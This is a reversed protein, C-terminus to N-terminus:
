LFQYMCLSQITLFEIVALVENILVRKEIVLNDSIDMRKTMAEYCDYRFKDSSDVKHINYQVRCLM